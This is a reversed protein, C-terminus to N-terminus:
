LYCTNTNGAVYLNGSLAAYPTNPTPPPNQTIDVVLEQLLM